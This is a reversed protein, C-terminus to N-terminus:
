PRVWRQHPTASYVEIADDGLRSGFRGADADRFLAGCYCEDYTDPDDDMFYGCQICKFFHMGTGMRWGYTGTATPGNGIHTLDNQELLSAQRGRKRADSKEM